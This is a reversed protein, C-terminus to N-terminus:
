VVKPSSNVVQKSAIEFLNACKLETELWESEAVSGWTIGAGTGFFLYEGNIWFTRIAVSMRAKQEFNDIWGVTGCYIERNSQELKKILNLASIKPAGTVSGPPFTAKFIDKWSTQDKLKGKVTSVLHVLGPHSQVELLKPVEVSGTQCVQSLDNRVLDVIMVNEARDKETLDSETKGTGKIPASFILDKDRELFLEPSASAILIDKNLREHSEKSIKILSAYPAPNGTRLLSFLGEIDFDTRNIKTKLVRCINAQYVDGLSIHDRLKNVADIYQTQNLSTSWSDKNVGKWNGISANSIRLDRFKLLLWSQEFSGIVVWYGPESLRELDVTVDILHEFRKDGFEAFADPNKLLNKENM